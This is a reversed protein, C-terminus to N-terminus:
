QAQFRSEVLTLDHQGTADVARVVAGTDTLDVASALKVRMHQELRGILDDIKDVFAKVRPQM